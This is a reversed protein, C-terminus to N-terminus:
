TNMMRVSINALELIVSTVSALDGLHYPFHQLFQSIHLFQLIVPSLFHIFARFGHPMNLDVDEGGLWKSSNKFDLLDMHGNSWSAVEVSANM